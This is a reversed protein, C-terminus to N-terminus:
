TIPFIYVLYCLLGFRKMIYHIQEESVSIIILILFLIKKVVLFSCIDVLLLTLFSVDDYLSSKGEWSIMLLAHNLRNQILHLKTRDWLQSESQHMGKLTMLLFIVQLSILCKEWLRKARCTLLFYFSESSDHVYLINCLLIGALSLFLCIPEYQSIKITPFAFALGVWQSM